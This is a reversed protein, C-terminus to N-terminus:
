LGLSTVNHGGLRPKGGDAISGEILDIAHSLHNKILVGAADGDGALIARVIGHHEDWTSKAWNIERLYASMVWRMRNWLLGMTEGIVANGSLTYIYGHFAVDAAILDTVSRSELAAIGATFLEDFRKRAAAKTDAAERCKAAALGAALGDLAGRVAYMSSVYETTLSAVMQGRRGVNTVFGQAKMLSLAQGVPQRSVELREALWEQGLRTGPPLKGSCIADLIAAYVTDALKENETESSM